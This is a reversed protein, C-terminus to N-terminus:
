IGVGPTKMADLWSRIAERNVEEVPYGRTRAVTRAGPSWDTTAVLLGKRARNWKVDAALAKITVKGIQRRERKCQVVILSSAERGSDKEWVRIDVGDDNRGPGLEVEFGSRHFYEAVLAEFKRWNIFGIDDYNGVLYNVFRQDIFRGCTTLTSERTFLDSLQVVDAWECERFHTGWLSLSQRRALEQLTVSMAHELSEGDDQRAEALLDMKLNDNLDLSKLHWDQIFYIDKTSHSTRGAVRARLIAIATEALYEASEHERLNEAVVRALPLQARWAGISGFHDLASYALAECTEARVRMPDDSIQPFWDGYGWVNASRRLDVDSVALGVRRGVLESLWESISRGTTRFAGL